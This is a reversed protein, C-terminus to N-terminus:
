YVSHFSSSSFVKLIMVLQVPEPRDDPDSVATPDPADSARILYSTKTASVTYWSFEETPAALYTGKALGVMRHDNILTQPSM